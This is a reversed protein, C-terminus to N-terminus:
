ATRSPDNFVPANFIRWLAHFRTLDSLSSSEAMFVGSVFAKRIDIGHGEPIRCLVESMSMSAYSHRYGLAHPPHTDINFFAVRRSGTVCLPRIVRNGHSM